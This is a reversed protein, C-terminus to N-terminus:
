LKRMLDDGTVGLLAGMADAATAPTASPSQRTSSAAPAAARSNLAVIMAAKQM